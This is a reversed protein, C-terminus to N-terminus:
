YYDLAISSCGHLHLQTSYQAGSVDYFINPTKPPLDLENYVLDTSRIKICQVRVYACDGKLIGYVTLCSNFVKGM